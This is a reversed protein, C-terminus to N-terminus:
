SIYSVGGRRGTNMVHNLVVLSVSRDQATKCESFLIKIRCFDESPRVPHAIAKKGYAHTHMARTFFLYILFVILFLFHEHQTNKLYM